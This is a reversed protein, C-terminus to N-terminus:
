APPGGGAKLMELEDLRDAWEALDPATPLAAAEARRLVDLALDSVLQIPVQGPHAIKQPWALADAYGRLQWGAASVIDRLERSVIRLAAGTEPAVLSSVRADTSRGLAAIVDAARQAATLRYTVKATTAQQWLERALVQVEPVLAGFDPEQPAVPTQPASLLESLSLDAPEDPWVFLVLNMPFRASLAALTLDYRWTPPDELADKLSTALVASQAWTDFERVGSERWADVLQDAFSPLVVLMTDAPGDPDTLLHWGDGAPTANVGLATLQDAREALWEGTLFGNTRFRHPFWFNGAFPADWEPERVASFEPDTRTGPVLPM